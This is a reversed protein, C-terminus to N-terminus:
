DGIATLWALGRCETQSQRQSVRRIQGPAPRSPKQNAGHDGFVLFSATYKTGGGAFLLGSIEILVLSDLEQM